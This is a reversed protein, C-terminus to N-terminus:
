LAERVASPETLVARLRARLRSLRMKAASESIGVAAAAERLTFQELMTLALLERDTSNSGAMVERVKGIVESNRDAVQDAPDAAPPPPPLKALFARYRNRSRTANRAVNSATVILWPLLSGDVFRVSARRRWLELFVIATLDEADASFAGTKLLHRLVRDRHRDWILGFRRADGELVDHWVDEDRETEV